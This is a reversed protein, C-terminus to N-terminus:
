RYEINDINFRISAFRLSTINTQFFCYNTLIMQNTSHNHHQHSSLKLKWNKIDTELKKNKRPHAAPSNGHPWIKM